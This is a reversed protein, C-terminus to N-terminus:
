WIVRKQVRGIAKGGKSIIKANEYAHLLFEYLESLQMLRKEGAIDTDFNMKKIACYAKHDLEVPLHCEKGYFLKYPSTGIPTKYATEVQGSTQPHYTTAVKRKVGYQALVNDLLKNCFHTSGDSIMVRTTGFRTFIHKKVFKFVVKADNTPLSIAEVWKSVYDVAVLIYKCGSSSPFPGMFDIGSVDFFEVEVIGHLPMGHRKTITRTRKATTKDGVRHGGYPSAHCEHLIANIECEPVCRRKLQDIYSKFLFPDDWVYSRVDRLFKKKAYPELDPSM